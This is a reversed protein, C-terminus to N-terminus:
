LRFATAMHVEFMARDRLHEFTPLDFSDRIAAIEADTLMVKSSKGVEFRAVDELLDRSTLKLERYIYRKTFAKMTSFYPGISGDSCRGRAGALTGARLDAVWTRMAAPTVSAIVHPKEHLALSKVFSAFTERYKRLTAKSVPRERGALFDYCGSFLDTLPINADERDAFLALPSYAM